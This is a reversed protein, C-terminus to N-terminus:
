SDIEEREGMDKLMAITEENYEYLGNNVFIARLFDESDQVLECSVNVIKSPEWTLCDYIIVSQSGRVVFYLGDRTFASNSIPSYYTAVEKRLTSEGSRISVILRSKKNEKEIIITHDASIFLDTRLTQTVKLERVRWNEM